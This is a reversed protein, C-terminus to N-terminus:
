LGKIFYALSPEITIASSASKVVLYVVSEISGKKSGVKFVFKNM